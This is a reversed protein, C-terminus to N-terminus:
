MILNAASQQMNDLFISDNGFHAPFPVQLLIRSSPTTPNAMATLMEEEEEKKKFFASCM